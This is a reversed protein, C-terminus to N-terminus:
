YIGISKVTGGGCSKAGYLCREAAEILDHPPFNKAPVTVTSVGVSVSMGSAGEETRDKSWHGIGDVLRKAAQVAQERDYDELILMFRGDGTQICFAQDNDLASMVAGLLGTLEVAAPPGCRLVLDGYDEIEVLLLSLSCRAHRCATVSAALRGMVAPDTDGCPATPTAALKAARPTAAAASIPSAAAVPTEAHRPMRAGARAFQGVAGALSQTEQWIAEGPDRECALPGAVDGAVDALLDHARALVALYDTGEPFELSLVDALQEVKEQITGVLTQLQEESLDHYRRGADLLGPLVDAREGTLLEALSDALHLIQPVSQEEPSLALLRDPDHPMAVARVLSEPLGWHDLLGASLIAHDFGLTATELPALDGREAHVKELFRAYPEGLDQLLALMGLDQLLGAIFAEDGPKKWVTESIERAAVAKTLTRRWYRALVEAEVGAFLEKPLSFGLVLLKLPKTGLLALAQNLDSVKQPLGFLSSNVVRLVKTTLAPDKEICAKLKAADVRPNSTLELVEMAVAPLTYFRRARQIFQTLAGSAPSPDPM